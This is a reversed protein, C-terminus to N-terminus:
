FDVREGSLRDDIHRFTGWDFKGVDFLITMPDKPQAAIGAKLTKIRPRFCESRVFAQAIFRAIYTIVERIENMDIVSASDPNTGLITKSFKIRRRTVKRVIVLRVTKRSLYNPANEFILM